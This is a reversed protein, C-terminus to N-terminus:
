CRDCRRRHGHRGAGSGRFENGIPMDFAQDAWLARLNLILWVRFISLSASDVRSVASTCSSCDQGHALALLAFPAACRYDLCRWQSRELVAEESGIVIYAIVKAVKLEIPRVLMDPLNEVTGRETERTIALTTLVQGPGIGVSGRQRGVSKLVEVTDALLTEALRHM